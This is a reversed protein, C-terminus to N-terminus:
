PKFPPTAPMDYIKFEDLAGVFGGYAALWPYIVGNSGRACYTALEADQRGNIYIRTYGGAKSWAVAIHTWADLPVPSTSTVTPPVGGGWEWGCNNEIKGDATLSIHGVYGSDPRPWDFWNFLVLQTSQPAIPYEAPKIWFEVTGEVWNSGAPIWRLGPERLHTAGDFFLAEGRDHGQVYTLDMGPLKVVPDERDFPDHLVAPPNVHCGTGVALFLVVAVVMWLTQKKM